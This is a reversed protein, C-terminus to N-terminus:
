KKIIINLDKNPYINHPRIKFINKLVYEKEKNYKCKSVHLDNVIYVNEEKLPPYTKCCTKHMTKM